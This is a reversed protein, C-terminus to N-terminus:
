HEVIPPFQKAGYGIRPFSFHFVRNKLAIRARLFILFIGFVCLKSPEESIESLGFVLDTVLLIKIKIHEVRKLDHNTM